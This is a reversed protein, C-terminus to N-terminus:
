SIVFTVHGSITNLGVSVIRGFVSYSNKASYPGSAFGFRINPLSIKVM